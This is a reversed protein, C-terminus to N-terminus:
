SKTIQVTVFVNLNWDRLFPVPRWIVEVQDNAFIWRVMSILSGFHNRHDVASLYRIESDSYGNARARRFTTLQRGARWVLGPDCPLFVSLQGGSRVVARWRRLARDPEALHHLLCMAILRDVSENEVNELLQADGIEFGVKRADSCADAAAARAADSDIIDLMTYNVFSHRVFGLHEAHTAGLELVVPFSRDNGFPRELARHFMRQVAGGLGRNTVCSYSRLYYDELDENM